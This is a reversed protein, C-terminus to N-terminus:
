YIRILDAYREATSEDHHSVEMWQDLLAGMTTNTRPHRKEDVKTQLRALAAQAEKRTSTSERLYREKGTLPDLGAYIVARYSGSSRQEVYGRRSKTAGM